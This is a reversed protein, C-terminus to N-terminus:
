KVEELASKAVEIIANSTMTAGSIVDVSDLNDQNDIIAQVLAGENIVTGGISETESHNLVEISTIVGDLLTVEVTMAALGTVEKQIVVEISTEVTVDALASKAAEIIANSTLTAGSIVDISDLNEQNEIITQILVGENIVTGGIGETETHELVEIATIVGEVLTVEVTMASLGTVEKVIKIANPDEVVTEEETTEEEVVEETEEEVTEETTDETTEETTEEVLENNEEVAEETSCAVLAFVLFLSLLVRKM